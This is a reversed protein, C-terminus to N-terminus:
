LRAMAMLRVVTSGEVRIHGSQFATGGTCPRELNFKYPSGTALSFSGTPTGTLDTVLGADSGALYVVTPTARMAVPLEIKFRQSIGTNTVYGHALMEISGSAGTTLPFAYRFCLMLETSIHRHEFPTAVEGVELQIGTLAFINGVTDLCNVQNATTRFNGDSWGAATIGGTSQYLSWDVEIGMGTTWNWTGATILGGTVTISKKEWTNAVAVTYEAVYTRDYGSNRMCVCHVGVKTSRVWFSLTFTRGILDRVNYGEIRHRINAASSSGAAMLTTVAIRLSNQFELSPADAHQSATVEGTTSNNWSFGEVIHKGSVLGPLSAADFSIEAKGNIIKNRLGALQGGNLSPVSVPGTFVAGALDAKLDLAAQQATSVPKDADSTNTVNSVTAALTNLEGQTAMDVAFGPNPYSGSLVGGAGGTAAAYATAASAEAAAQAAEAEDRATGAATAQTTATAAAAEANTEATEANTEALEAAVRAADAATVHGAATAVHGAAVGASAGAATAQAAADVVSDAAADASVVAAAASAAAATAQALADAESLAAADASADAATASAAAANESVLAAAASAASATAENESAVAAAQAATNASEAAAQATEAAIEAAESALESLGAATESAAAAAESAAAAVQSISAATASASAAAEKLVAEDRAADAGAEAAVAQDRMTTAIGALTTSTVVDDATLQANAITAAVATDLEGLDIRGASYAAEAASNAAAVQSALSAVRDAEAAAESAAAAVQSAAADDVLATVEALAAQSAIMAQQSADIEPYPELNLISELNCAQDPVVALGDLFLKGTDPNWAKINYGSGAVGLANPWLNLVCIGNADTYAEAQEPVVFGQYIEPVSLTAVFRGEVVPNGNQDFARCTVPVTHLTPM